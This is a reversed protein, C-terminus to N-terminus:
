SKDKKTTVRFDRRGKRGGYSTGVMDQTIVIPPTDAITGASITWGDGLVRSADGIAALMEAKASTKADDAAKAAASAQQYQAVLADIGPVATSYIARDADAHQMMAIVADADAPMVPLPPTDSAISAWFEAIKAAMASIVADDRDRRIVVLRNGGVLAAIYAQKYGSVMLQHQVQLEIHTPAEVTGDDHELWGRSYALSDVNKIELLTPEALNTIEFDFSSGARASPSRIYDKLPKIQWDREQAVGAAIAAELRNGWRMRETAEFPRASGSRKAHWLEYRTMYPTLGFLAPSETSTVDERRMALWHAENDPTIRVTDIM